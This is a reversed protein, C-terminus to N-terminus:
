PHYQAPPGCVHVLDAPHSEDRLVTLAALVHPAMEFHHHQSTCIGALRQDGLVLGVDGGRAGVKPQSPLTASREVLRDVSSGVTSAPPASSVAPPGPPAAQVASQGMSGRPIASLRIRGVGQPLWRVFRPSCCVRVHGAQGSLVPGTGHGGRGWPRRGRRKYVCAPLHTFWWGASRRDDRPRLM